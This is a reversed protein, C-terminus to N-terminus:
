VFRRIPIGPSFRREQEPIQRLCHEAQGWLVDDESVLFAIFDELMGPLQNDPMLWIGVVPQDAQEIITGGPDPDPPVDM